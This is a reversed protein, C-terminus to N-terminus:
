NKGDLLYLLGRELHFPPQHNQQTLNDIPLEMEAM